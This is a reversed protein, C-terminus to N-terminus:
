LVGAQKLAGLSIGIVIAVVVIAWLLGGSLGILGQAGEPSPYAVWTNDEPPNVQYGMNEYSDSATKPNSTVTSTLNMAVLATLFGVLIIGM